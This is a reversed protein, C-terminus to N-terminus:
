SKKEEKKESKPNKETPQKTDQCVQFKRGKSTVWSCKAGKEDVDPKEKPKEEGAEMIKAKLQIFQLKAKLFNIENETNLMCQMNNNEEIDRKLLKTIDENNKIAKLVRDRVEEPPTFYTPVGNHKILLPMHVSANMQISCNGGEGSCTSYIKADAGYAPINVYALHVGMWDHADVMPRGDPAVGVMKAGNGRPWIAPSVFKVEKNELKRYFAPTCDHIGFATHEAENFGVEVITSVRYSNQAVLAEEYSRGSVHNLDCDLDDCQVYEIGPLGVFTGANAKISEWTVRWFNKNRKDNILFVKAFLGRRGKWDKIVEIDSHTDFPIM